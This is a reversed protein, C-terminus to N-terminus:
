LEVVSVRHEGDGLEHAQEHINVAQPPLVRPVDDGAREGVGVVRHEGLGQLRPLNRDEIAEEWPDHLDHPLDVPTETDVHRLTPEIPLADVVHRRYRTPADVHRPDSA